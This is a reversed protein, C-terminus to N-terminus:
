NYFFIEVQILYFDTNHFKFNATDYYRKLDIFALFHTRHKVIKKKNNFTKKAKLDFFCQVAEVRQAAVLAAFFHIPSGQELQVKTLYM